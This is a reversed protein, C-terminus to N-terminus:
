GVVVALVTDMSVVEVPTFGHPDGDVQVAIQGPRGPRPEAEIRVAIASLAIVDASAELRGLGLRVAAAILAGVGGRKLAVLRLGPRDMATAATLHFPGGYRSSKAVIALGVRHTTFGGDPATVSVRLPHRRRLGLRLATVLFALTKFRRKVAREVHHVVEADFGASAALFFPRDAAGERRVCGLHLPRTRGALIAAAIAEVATPLAYEAVMVNATGQAVVALRPRPEARGVLSGVVSNLTGDGGAVAVVDVALAAAARALDGPVLGMVRRVEAGGAELLAALRDLEAPDHRGAHPNALIAVRLPTSAVM